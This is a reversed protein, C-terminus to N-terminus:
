STVLTPVPHTAAQTDPAEIFASTLKGDLITRPSQLIKVGEGRLRQLTGDLHEVSFAFHDFARGRPSEFDARGQRRGIM